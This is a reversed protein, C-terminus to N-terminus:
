QYVEREFEVIVDTAGPAVACLIYYRGLGGDKITYDEAAGVTLINGSDWAKVPKAGITKAIEAAIAPDPFKTRSSDGLYTVTFREKVKRAQYERLNRAPVSAVSSTSGGYGVEGRVGCAITPATGVGHAASNTIAGNVMTQKYTAGAMEVAGTLANDALSSPIGDLNSKNLILNKMHKHMLSVESDSLATKGAGGFWIRTNPAVSSGQANRGIFLSALANFSLNGHAGVALSAVEQGDVDLRYNTTTKRLVVTHILSDTYTSTSTPIVTTVAGDNSAVGLLNGTGNLHLQIVAGLYAAGNWYAAQLLIENSGSASTKFACALWAEGTAIGDWPNIANLFNTNVTFGSLGAVGGTVEATATLTGNITAHNSLGSYDAVVEVITIDDFEVYGGASNNAVLNVAVSTSAATFNASRVGTSTAVPIITSGGVQVSANGTSIAIVNASIKYTRGIVLTFTKAAAGYSLPSLSTVRLKDTEHSLTASNVATWTGISSTFTSDDGTVKNADSIAGTLTSCILMLEPKKMPPTAHYLGKRALLGSTFDVPNPWLQDIGLQNSLVFSNEAAIASTIQASSAVSSLYPYSSTVYINQHSFSAGLLSPDGYDYIQNSSASRIGYLRGNLFWTLSYGSTDSSKVVTGDPKILSLGAATAGSIYGDIAAVSIAFSNSIGNSDLTKYGLASNRNGIGGSFAFTSASNKHKAVDNKFDIIRLSAGSGAGGVTGFILKGNAFVAGFSIGTFDAASSCAFMTNSSRLFAMWLPVLPSTLDFISLVPSSGHFVFMCEAPMEASGARYNITRSNGGSLEYQAKDTTDWYYDGNVSAIGQCNAAWALAVTAYDGLPRGTPRTETKYSQQGQKEWGEASKFAIAKINTIGRSKLIAAINATSDTAQGAAAAAALANQYSSNKFGETALRAAETGAFLAITQEEVTLGVSANYDRLATFNASLQGLKEVYGEGGNYPKDSNAFDIPDFEPVPM